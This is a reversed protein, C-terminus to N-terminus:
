KANEYNYNNQKGNGEKELPQLNSKYEGAEDGCIYTTCITYTRVAAKSIDTYSLAEAATCESPVVSLVSITQLHM